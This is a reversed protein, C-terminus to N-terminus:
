KKKMRRYDAVMQMWFEDYKARYDVYRELVRKRMMENEAEQEHIKKRIKRIKEYQNDFAYWVSGVLVLVTLGPNTTLGERVVREMFQGIRGQSNAASSSSGVRRM